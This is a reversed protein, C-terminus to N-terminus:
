LTRGLVQQATGGAPVAKVPPHASLMAFWAEQNIAEEAEILDLALQQDPTLTM